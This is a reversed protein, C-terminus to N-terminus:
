GETRGPSAFLSPVTRRHSAFVYPQAKICRKTQEKTPFSFFCVYARQINKTKIAYLSVLEDNVVGAELLVSISFKRETVVM